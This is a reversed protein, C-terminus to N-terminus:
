KIRDLFYPSSNQKHILRNGDAELVLDFGKRSGPDTIIHIITETSTFEYKKSCDVGWIPGKLHAFGNSFSVRNEGYGWSTENFEKM